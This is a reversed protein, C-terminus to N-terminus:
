HLHRYMILLTCVDESSVSIIGSQLLTCVDESSVSIIGSQLLTCVDESSVYLEKCTVYMDLTFILIICLKQLVLYLHLQFPNTQCGSIPLM